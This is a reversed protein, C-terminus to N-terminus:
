RSKSSVLSKTFERFAAVLVEEPQFHKCPHTVSKWNGMMAALIGTCIVSRKLLDSRTHEGTESQISRGTRRIGQTCLSRSYQLAGFELYQGERNWQIMGALSGPMGSIWCNKEWITFWRQNSRRVKGVAAAPEMRSKYIRKRYLKSLPKAVIVIGTPWKEQIITSILDQEHCWIWTLFMRWIM